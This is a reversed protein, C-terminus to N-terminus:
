SGMKGAQELLLLRAKLHALETHLHGIETQLETRHESLGHVIRTTKLLDDHLQDLKEDATLEQWQKAMQAGM